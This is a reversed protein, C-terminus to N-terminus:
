GLLRGVGYIVAAVLAVGIGLMVYAGRKMNNKIREFQLRDNVNPFPTSPVPV